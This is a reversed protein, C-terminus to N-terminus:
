SRAGKNVIEVVEGTTMYVIYGVDVENMEIYRGVQRAYGRTASQSPRIDSKWDFIAKIFGDKGVAAADIVGYEVTEIGDALTSAATVVEPIIMERMSSIIPLDLTRRVTRALEDPFLDVIVRGVSAAYQSSVEAARALLMEYTDDIEGNLVEEMLKHLIIGREAGGAIGVYPDLLPVADVLDDDTVDTALAPSWEHRSPSTWVIRPAANTVIRHQEEFEDAGVATERPSVKGSVKSVYSSLDLPQQLDLKMDLMFAWSDPWEGQYRPLILLDKARTAAVYWIRMREFASEREAKILAEEYGEPLLGMFPMTMSNTSPDTIIASQRMPSTITNVPIVVPWELGKASHMTILSVSNDHEDPRGEEVREGDEWALRMADSFARIGRVSYPRSMELYRDVNSLQREPNGDFRAVIKPRVRLKDVAESLLSHPSTTEAASRLTSLDNLVSILIPNRLASTDMGVRLHVLNGDEGPPLRHAEDLLEQETLGVLPGRLFAGLALTDRSDALVRTLAILDHVEQQRFLGKGAQTAVAIGSRELANEYRWLETGQPVLLAIDGAKCPHLEGNRDEVQLNGILKACIEAVAEAERERVDGIRPDAGDDRATVDDIDFFAVAQKDSTRHASLETFGPQGEISLVPEFMTNVHDLISSLSRFNTSVSLVSSPDAARMIERMAVYTAVDAGRFRYIAQKPDGVLFISGARPIWNGDIRDFALNLFIRTQLPDTDQFEDVLIHRYQETLAARIEPHTELLDLASTLLDGFDLFAADRKFEAYLKIMPSVESHLMYLAAAAVRRQLEVLLSSCTGFHEVAEEFHAKGVAKTDAAAEWKSKVKYARVTKKATFLYSAHAAAAIEIAVMHPKGPKRALDRFAKLADLFQDHEPVAYGCTAYWTEFTTVATCFDATSSTDFSVTPVKLAPNERLSDAIQRILGMGAKPDNTIIKTILNEDPDHGSLRSRLWKDFIDDFALGADVPDLIQAGPDIDAEVPFPKIIKQCFGHITTCTLESIAGRAAELNHRQKEDPGDPFAAMLDAPTENAMVESIFKMVRAVLEAAAMETFSVAAIHRPHVGSALLAVIRGALLSTKGSGAGAEVHLSKDLATLATRRAAADNMTM